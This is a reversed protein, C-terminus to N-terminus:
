DGVKRIGKIKETVDATLVNLSPQPMIIQEETYQAAVPSPQQARAKPAPPRARPTVPRVPTNAKAPDLSFLLFPHILCPFQVKDFM